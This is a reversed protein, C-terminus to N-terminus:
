EKRRVCVRSLFVGTGRVWGCLPGGSVAGPLSRREASGRIIGDSFVRRKRRECQNFYRAVAGDVADGAFALVYCLFSGPRAPVVAAGAFSRLTPVLVLLLSSLHVARPSAPPLTHAHHQKRSSPLLCNIPIHESYM